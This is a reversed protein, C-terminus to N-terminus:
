DGMKRDLPYRARVERLREALGITLPEGLGYSKTKAWGEPDQELLWIAFDEPDVDTRLRGDADAPPNFCRGTPVLVMYGEDTFGIIGDIITGRKRQELPKGARDVITILRREVVHRPMASDRAM